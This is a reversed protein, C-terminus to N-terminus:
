QKSILKWFTQPNSEVTKLARDPFWDSRAPNSEPSRQSIPTHTANVPTVPTSDSRDPLLRDVLLDLLPLGSTEGQWRTSGEDDFYLYSSALNLRGTAEALDDLPFHASPGMLPNSSLSPPPVGNPYAINSPPVAAGNSLGPILSGNSFMNVPISQILSELHHM